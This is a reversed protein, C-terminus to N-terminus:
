FERLPKDLYCSHYQSGFTASGNRALPNNSPIINCSLLPQYSSLAQELQAPTITNILGGLFITFNDKSAFPRVLIDYKGIKNGKLQFLVRDAVEASTFTAVAKGSDV